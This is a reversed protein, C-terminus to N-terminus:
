RRRAAPTAGPSACPLQLHSPPRGRAFSISRLRDASNRARQSKTGGASSTAGRSHDQSPEGRAPEAAALLCGMRPATSRSPLIARTSISSRVALELLHYSKPSGGSHHLHDRDDTVQVYICAHQKARCYGMTHLSKAMRRWPKDKQEEVAAGKSLCWCVPQM